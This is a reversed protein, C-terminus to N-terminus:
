KAFSIHFSVVGCMKRPRGDILLPRFRWTKVTERCIRDVEPDKPFPRATTVDVVRGKASVCFRTRNEGSRRSFLATPTRALRRPDPDPAHTARARLVDLPQKAVKKDDTRRPVLPTPVGLGTGFPAGVQSVGPPGHTPGPVGGGGGPPPKPLVDPAIDPPAPELPAPQDPVESDREDPDARRPQPPPPQPPPPIMDGIQVLVHGVTPGAVKHVQMGSGLWALTSLAMTAVSAAAFGLILGRQHRRDVGHHQVYHEFM